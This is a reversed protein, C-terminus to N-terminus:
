WRSGMMSGDGKGDDFYGEWPPRREMPQQYAANQQQIRQAHPVYGSSQNDGPRVWGPPTQQQPYQQQPQGWVGAPAQNPQAQRWSVKGSATEVPPAVNPQPATHPQGQNVPQQAQEAVAESPKAGSEDGTNGMLPPISVAMETFQDRYDFWDLNFRLDSYVPIVDEFEEIVMNLHRGLNYYSKLLADLNPATAVNSGESYRARDGVVYDFLVKVSNLSERDRKTQIKVGVVTGSTADDMADRLPFHVQCTQAFKRDGVKGGKRIYMSLIAADTDTLKQGKKLLARLIEYPRKFNEGFQSIVKQQSPRLTKQREKDNTLKGLEDLMVVLTRCTRLLVQRRVIKFVPSHKALVNQSLPHFAIFNNEPRKLVDRTPLFLPLELDGIEVFEAEENLADYIAGDDEVSYGLDELLSRYFDLIVM